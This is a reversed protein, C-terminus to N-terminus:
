DDGLDIYWLEVTGSITLEEAATQDFTSAYNLFVDKATTTGDLSGAVIGDVAVENNTDSGSKTLNSVTHGTLIDEFTATGSLVAVAGSAVVTGLGIEGATSGLGDPATLNVNMRAGVIAVEAEHFDWIKQGFGLAADGSIAKKFENVNITLKKITCLEARQLSAAPKLADVTALTSSSPASGLTTKLEEVFKAM